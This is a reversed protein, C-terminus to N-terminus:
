PKIRDAGARVAKALKNALRYSQLRAEAIMRDRRGAVPQYGFEAMQKRTLREIIAVESGALEQRWSDVRGRRYFQRDAEEGSLAGPRVKDFATADVYATADAATIPEGMWEFLKMIEAEGDAHLNEYLVERYRNTIRAIGQARNVKEAWSRCGDIVGQPAWTSGWSTSAARLSAVVSRPDRIIHIFYSDPYVRLVHQAYSGHNPSKELLIYASSRKQMIQEFCLDPLQRCWGFFEEGSIFNSLGHNTGLFYDWSECASRLYRDFLRTEPATAINTSQALALQLWTTGSRPSGVIFVHIRKKASTSGM